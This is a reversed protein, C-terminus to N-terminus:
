KAKRFPNSLGNQFPPFMLKFRYTVPGFGLYHVPNQRDLNQQYSFPPISSSSLHSQSHGYYPCLLRPSLPYCRCALPLDSSLFVRVSEPWWLMGLLCSASAGRHGKLLPQRSSQTAAISGQPTLTKKGRGRGRVPRKQEGMPELLLHLLGYFSSPTPNLAFTSLPCSGMPCFLSCLCAPFLPM